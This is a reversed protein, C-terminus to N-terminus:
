ASASHSSPALSSKTSPGSVTSFTGRMQILDDEIIEIGLDWRAQV